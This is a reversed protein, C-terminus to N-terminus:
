VAIHDARQSDSSTSAPQTPSSYMLGLLVFCHTRNSDVYGHQCHGLTEGTSTLTSPSTVLLIPPVPTGPLTTRPPHCVPTHPQTSSLLTHLADTDFQHRTSRTAISLSSATGLPRVPTHHNLHSFSHPPLPLIHLQAMTHAGCWSDMHM